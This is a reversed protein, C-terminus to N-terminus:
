DFSSLVGAPRDWGRLLKRCLCARGPACRGVWLCMVLACGWPADGPHMVLACARRVVALLRLFQPAQGACGARPGPGPSGNACVPIITARRYSRDRMPSIIALGNGFSARDRRRVSARRMGALLGLPARFPAQPRLSAPPAPVM